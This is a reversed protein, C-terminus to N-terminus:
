LPCSPNFANRLLKHLQMRLAALIFCHLLAFLGPWIRQVLVLGKFFFFCTVWALLVCLLVPVWKATIDAINSDRAFSLNFVSRTSGNAMFALGKISNALSGLFLFYQAPLFHHM